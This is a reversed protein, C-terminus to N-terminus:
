RPLLLPLFHIGYESLSYPLPTGKKRQAELARDFAEETELQGKVFYLVTELDDGSKSWTISWIGHRPGLFWARGFGSDMAGSAYSFTGDIKLHNMARYVFQHAYVAGNEAKLVIYEYQGDNIGYGNHADLVATEYVELVMEPLRDMDLDVLVFDGWAFGEGYEEALLADLTMERYAADMEMGDYYASYRVPIENRAAQQFLAATEPDNVWYETFLYQWEPEARAAERAMAAAFADFDVAEGDVMYIRQGNVLDTYVYPTTEWVPGNLRPRCYGYSVIREDTFEYGVPVHGFSYQREYNITEEWTGDDRLVRSAAYGSGFAFAGDAKLDWADLLYGYVQGDVFDLFLYALAYDRGIPCHKYVLEPIGNQDIDLLTRHTYESMSGFALANFRVEVPDRGDELCELYTADEELVARYAALAERAEESTWRPDAWFADKGEASEGLAGPILAMVLLFPLLMAMRKKM